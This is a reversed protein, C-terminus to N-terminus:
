DRGVINSTGCLWDSTWFIKGHTDRDEIPVLPWAWSPNLSTTRGARNCKKIKYLKWKGNRHIYTRIVRSQIWSRIHFKVKCPSGVDPIKLSLPDNRLEKVLKSRIEKTMTFESFPVDITNGAIPQSDQYVTKTPLAIPKQALVISKGLFIGTLLIFDLTKM